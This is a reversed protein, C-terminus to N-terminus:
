GGSTAALKEIEELVALHDASHMPGDSFYREQAFSVNARRELVFKPLALQGALATRDVDFDLRALQMVRKESSVTMTRASILASILEYGRLLRSLPREFEVVITSAYLKRIGSSIERFGFELKVWSIVDELFAEAWDTKESIAVLGDNYVRFDTITVTTGNIKFHGMGFQLGNQAM